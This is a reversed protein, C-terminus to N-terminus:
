AMLPSGNLSPPFPPAPNGDAVLHTAPPFPPAPNGDAVLRAAPPFPPAPNGDRALRNPATSNQNIAPIQVSSLSVSAALMTLVFLSSLKM